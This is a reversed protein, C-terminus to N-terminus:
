LVPSVAVIPAAPPSDGLSGAFALNSFAFIGGDSAVMLYGTGYNAMGIVPKNLRTAGMSGLFPPGFAFIGGDSAVLWYGPGAPNPALGVVPKNLHQGGMSGQFVADGFSFIGGDSGVMYYGKGDPAAVSGLVPGNLRIGTMDGLFPADGYAVARGLNTFLWYGRGTPTASLSTVSEGANLAPGGGLYAADGYAWVEGRTDVVWYGNGDPTSVVDVAKAGAPLSPSGDNAAAGFAYVQGSSGLMWYGPRPPPPLAVAPVQTSLVSTGVANLARVMYYYTTGLSVSTDTFSTASGATTAIVAASFGATTSRLVQYATIPAGGDDPGFWSVQVASPQGSALIAPPAAPNTRGVLAVTQPGNPGTVTLTAAAAGTAGPSFRVAIPCSAGAAITGCSAPTVTFTPSAGGAGGTGGPGGTLTPVVAMSEGSATATVVAVTTGGAPAALALSSSSLGLSLSFAESGWTFYTTNTTDGAAFLQALSGGDPDSTTDGAGMILQPVALLINDRHGWCGSPDATTCSLNGGGPGDAYLFLEDALLPNATSAWNGAQETAHSDLLPPDTDNLAGQQAYGDLVASLGTAPALGRDVRELNTVVFIQENLTLSVYNFPLAMPGVGEAARDRNIEPLAASVCAPTVPVSSCAQTVASGIPLNAPPNAPPLLGVAQSVGSTLTVMLVAAVLATAM